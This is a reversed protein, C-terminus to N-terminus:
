SLTSKGCCIMECPDYEIDLLTGSLTRIRCVAAAAAAADASRKTRHCEEDALVGGRVVALATLMVLLSSSMKM